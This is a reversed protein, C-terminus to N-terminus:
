GLPLNKLVKAKLEEPDTTGAAALDILRQIIAAKLEGAGRERYQEDQAQLIECVDHFAAKISTM